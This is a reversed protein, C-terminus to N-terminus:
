IWIKEFAVFMCNFNPIRPICYTQLINRFMRYFGWKLDEMIETERDEADIWGDMGRSLVSHFRACIRGRCGLWAGSAQLTYTCM